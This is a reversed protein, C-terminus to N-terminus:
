IKFLYYIHSSEVRGRSSHTPGRGIYASESDVVGQYVVGGFGVNLIGPSDEAGPVSCGNLHIVLVLAYPWYSDGM